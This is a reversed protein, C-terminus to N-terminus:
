FTLTNSLMCDEGALEFKLTQNNEFVYISNKKDEKLINFGLCSLKDRTEESFCYIFRSM